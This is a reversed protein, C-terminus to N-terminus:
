HKPKKIELWHAYLREIKDIMRDVSYAQAATQGKRGMASAGAPDTLCRVIARALASPDAPPVLFGTEEDTVIDQIGSVRSGVVPRGAALAEVAARGMGENLSPLVVVDFLPMLEPVDRRLGLFAVAGNLGLLRAREELRPRMPGDGVFVVTAAPVSSRIMPVAELLCDVGKVPVLRAVCGVLPAGPRLGLERRKAGLDVQANQFRDVDVGSHIVTFLENPGVGFRLHDQREAETLCVIQDTWRALWREVHRLAESGSRNIYGHFAHGHPTHIVIPVHALRATLRGLIGAKTTHTHVIHYRDRRTLAYLRGAAALDKAPHPHRVLEPIREFAVGPPLRDELSGEPGATPGSILTVEYKSRDLRAATLLTNEQAGGLVLRTIVHAVRIKSPVTPGPM